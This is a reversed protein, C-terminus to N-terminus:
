APTSFRLFNLGKAVTRVFVMWQDRAGGNARIASKTKEHSTLKSAFMDPTQYLGITLGIDYNALDVQVICLGSRSGFFRSKKVGM